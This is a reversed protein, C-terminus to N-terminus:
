TPALPILGPFHPQYPNNMLLWEALHMVPDIPKVKVIETLGKLLTENVHLSLYDIVKEEDCLIPELISRPFFYRNENNSAVLNESAHLVDTKDDEIGFRTRVSYPFFWEERLVRYPGVMQKWREIANLGALVLVMLPGISCSLIIHPFMYSGYQQAYIESVQEPTLHVLRKSIIHLGEETVARLVVDKYEMAEPKIICITRQLTPEVCSISTSSSSPYTGIPLFIEPPIFDHYDFFDGENISKSATSAPSLYHITDRTVTVCVKWKKTQM